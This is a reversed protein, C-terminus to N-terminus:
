TTIVYIILSIYLVYIMIDNYISSIKIHILVNFRKYIYFHHLSKIEEPTFKKLLSQCPDICLFELGKFTGHSLRM